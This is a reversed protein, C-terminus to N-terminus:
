FSIPLVDSFSSIVIWDLNWSKVELRDRCQYNYFNFLCTFNGKKKHNHPKQKLYLTAIAYIQLQDAYLQSYAAALM